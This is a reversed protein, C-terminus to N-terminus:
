FAKVDEYTFRDLKREFGEISVMFGEKKDLKELNKDLTLGGNNLIENYLEKTLEKM